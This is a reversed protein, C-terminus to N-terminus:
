GMLEITSLNCSKDISSAYLPTKHSRLTLAGCEERHALAFHRREGIKGGMKKQRCVGQEVGPDLGVM